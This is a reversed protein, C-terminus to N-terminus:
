GRLAGRLLGQLRLLLQLVWQRGAMWLGLVTGALDALVDAWDAVRGPVYMQHWEDSLAYLACFVAAALQHQRSTSPLSGEFARIAVVALIAYELAHAGGKLIQDLAAEPVTPLTPQSSLAFILAMWAVLPGWRSLWRRPGQEGGRDGSM